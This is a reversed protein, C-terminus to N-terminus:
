HRLELFLDGGGVEKDLKLKTKLLRFCAQVVHLEVSVYLPPSQKLM